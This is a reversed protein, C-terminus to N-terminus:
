GEEYREGEVEYEGVGDKGEIAAVSGAVRVIEGEM